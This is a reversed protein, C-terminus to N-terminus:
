KIYKAEITSLNSNRIACEKGIFENKPLYIGDKM